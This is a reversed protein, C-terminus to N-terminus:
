WVILNAGYTLGAGFGVTIIIDGKKLSGSRALEDLAIAVSAASTNAYKEINLYFTDSSIGLRKAAADIIRKNAQHPVIFAVDDLTLGEKKLISKITKTIANVAFLYVPQGEMEIHTPKVITEGVKFPNRTGGRRLLLYKAGSGDSGLISRLIGRKKNKENDKLELIAAGAGDGFLVCTNRDTWDTIRSLADSGIVLAKKRHGSLIMSYATDIAYIFGTCGAMVDFAAAKKAGIKDQVICAVSPFGPYDPSATAVVILDIDAAAQKPNEANILELANLAAKYALDSTAEDESVIHREKIGTHSYIWEDSTEVYKTLDENTLTKKPIYRGTAIIEISM